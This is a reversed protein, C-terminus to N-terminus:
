CGLSATLSGQSDMDILLVRRGERALGIGLNVSTVTKACGGKQNCICYIVAGMVDCRRGAPISGCYGMEPKM